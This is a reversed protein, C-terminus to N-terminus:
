KLASGASNEGSGSGSSATSSDAQSASVIDSEPASTSTDTAIGHNPASASQAATAQAAAAAETKAQTLDAYSNDTSAAAPAATAAPAAADAPQAAASTADQATSSQPSPMASSLSSDGEPPIIKLKEKILQCIFATILGCIIGAGVCYHPNGYVSTLGAGFFSATVPAYTLAAGASSGLRARIDPLIKPRMAIALAIFTAPLAAMFGYRSLDGFSNGLIGGAFCSFAWAMWLGVGCGIHFGYSFGKGELSRRQIDQMDLAWSEDVMLFHGFYLRFGKQDKMYPAFTVGMVIHRSNILFTTFAIMLVPPASSWLGLAAFESGGALNIASMLFTTLASQGVQSAQAGLIMGLPVFGLMLPLATYYGRRFESFM